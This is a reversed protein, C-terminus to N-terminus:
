RRPAPLAGVLRAVIAEHARDVEVDTLTRDPARYEISWLMSKQGEGLKPDRYEELLRVRSVLPEAADAIVAEVRGAPIADGLLLSV